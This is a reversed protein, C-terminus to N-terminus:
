KLKYGRYEEIRGFVRSIKQVQLTIIDQLLYEGQNFYPFRQLMLEEFLRFCLKLGESNIIVPREKKVQNQEEYGFHDTKLLRKNFIKLVYHDVLPRFEELLDLALSLRNYDISHLAGIFPDLGMQHLSSSIKNMLMVYYLSLLANVPDRPPQRNRGNFTFDRTTLMLGLCSFYHRSAMGEYGLLQQLNKEHNIKGMLKGIQQISDRIAPLKLKQNRKHLIIQYNRLKSRIFEVSLKLRNRNTRLYSFQQWRLLSNGSFKGLLRGRFDGHSTLFVTDIGESLLYKIVPPTLGINGVLILQSLDQTIIKQITETGLTVQIAEGKKCVTSGQLTVYCVSM